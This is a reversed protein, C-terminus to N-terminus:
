NITIKVENLSFERNGNFGFEAISTQFVLYHQNHPYGRYLSHKLRTSVPNFQMIKNTEAGCMRLQIQTSFHRVFSTKEKLM